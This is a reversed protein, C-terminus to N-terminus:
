WSIAGTSYITITLTKTGNGVTITGTASPLGTQKAFVVESIGSFQLYSDYPLITDYATQRAAYSNGSFLTIKGGVTSVGHNVNRESQLARTEATRLYTVLTDSVAELERNKTFNITALVAFRALILGICITVLIEVLTFGSRQRM